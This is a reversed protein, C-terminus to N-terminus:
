SIAAAWESAWRRFMAAAERAAMSIATRVSSENGDEVGISMMMEDKLPHPIQYGVYTIIKKNVQTADMWTQLVNGLTHDENEFIVDFGKMKKASPQLRMNTPLSGSDISAYKILKEQIVDIARRVIYRSDLTRMTEIEFDFSYPESNEDQLYCRNVEMTKFEREFEGLRVTDAEIELYDVKKYDRLWKIFFQKQKEENTDLTYKYSCQSVPIFRANERGVGVTARATFEIEEPDQQGLRGKLVALLATSKSIPDPFFFETNPVKVPGDDTIRNVEIDSVLVDVAVPSENKMKLRFEYLEPKWSMPDPFVIPILGIRHALMENSMPTTNKLIKVDSTSGDSLIDARFGVTEVEALIVRRLTNAFSYNTPSIRFRLKTSGSVGVDHFLKAQGAQGTKSARSVSMSSSAM